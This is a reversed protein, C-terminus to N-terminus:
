YIFGRLTKGKKKKGGGRKERKGRGRAELLVHSWDGVLVWGCEKRGNDM